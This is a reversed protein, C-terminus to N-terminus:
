GTFSLLGEGYGVVALSCKSLLLNEIVLPELLLLRSM